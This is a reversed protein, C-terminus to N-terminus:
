NYVSKLYLLSIDLTQVLVASPMSWLPLATPFALHEMFPFKMLILEHIICM